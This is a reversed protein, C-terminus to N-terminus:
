TLNTTNPQLLNILLLHSLNLVKLNQVIFKFYGLLLKKKM